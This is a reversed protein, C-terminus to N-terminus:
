AAQAVARSRRAVWQILADRDSETEWAKRLFEAPHIDHEKLFRRDAPCDYMVEPPLEGRLKARAKEIIRPLWPIGQAEAERAPFAAPSLVIGSPQDEQIERLYSRRLEHIMAFTAFDPEGYSVYDEAYDYVENANLGISALFELENRNFYTEADRNGKEYQTVAWRWIARLERQYLPPEIARTERDQHSYGLTRAINCRSSKSM